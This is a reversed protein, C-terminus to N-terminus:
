DSELAGRDPAAGLYGDTIGPVITGEDILPSAPALGLKQVVQNRIFAHKQPITLGAPFNTNIVLIEDNFLPNTSVLGNAGPGEAWNHQNDDFVCNYDFQVVNTNGLVGIDGQSGSLANNKGVNNLFRAGGATARSGELWIGFWVNDYVTNNYFLPRETDAGDIGARNNSFSINHAFVNDLGGRVGIKIGNGDGDGNPATLPTNQNFAINRRYICRTAGVGDIGDDTNGFAINDEFVNEIGYRNKFGDSHEAITRNDYAICRRVTCYRSAYQTWGQWANWQSEPLDAAFGDNGAIPPVHAQNSTRTPVERFEFGAVNHHAICDEFVINRVTGDGKLAGGIFTNDRDNHHADILRITVFSAPAVAVVAARRNNRIEFNEFVVHSAEIIVAERTDSGRAAGDIVPSEGNQGKITVPRAATGSRTPPMYLAATSQGASESAYVGNRVIVTDGPYTSDVASQITARPASASGNGVNDGVVGGVGDRDVFYTYAATFNQNSVDTSVSVFARSPPDFAANDGRPAITGSFGPPVMITFTGNSVSASAIVAGPAAAAFAEIVLPRGGAPTTGNGRFITGLLTHAGICADTPEDCFQSAGCPAAGPTCLGTQCVEPGNCFLADACATGDTEHHPQCSGAANCSDPNDCASNSPNGCATGAPLAPHTCQNAVCLDGTCDNDDDCDSNLACGCIDTLENCAAQVVCPPTGPTCVGNQCRENGNCYLGDPCPLGNLSWNNRCVGNGDCTDAANCPAAAASGCAAGAPKFPNSCVGGSCVDNTCPIADNCDANTLCGACSDASEVCAKGLCPVAGNVCQGADCEELGNCFLGDNCDNDSLCLPVPPPPPPPPPATTGGGGSPPPASSGSILVRIMNEGSEGETCAFTQANGPERVRLEITHTGSNNFVHAREFHTALPGQDAIGDFMWLLVLNTPVDAFDGIVSATIRLGPEGTLARSGASNERVAQFQFPCETLPDTDLPDAEAPELPQDEASAPVPNDRDDSDGILIGDTSADAM